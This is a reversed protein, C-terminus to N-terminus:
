GVKVTVVGYAPVDVELLGGAYSATSKELPQELIDTEVAPANEPVVRSLRVAARVARGEMEYLRLILADSDEAKKVSALMVNDTECRIFGQAAPEEGTHADTSAVSFPANYAWGARTADSISCDGLHPQVAWRIIHQGMEPLPDPMYSSRLLTLRLVNGDARHGYKDANLLTIGAQQGGNEGSIDAWKLAPVEQPGVPREISGFPVEYRARPNSVNVPFSVRLQPIGTEHSGMELWNVDLTFEVQRSDEALGIEVAFTSSRHKRRCVVAARHPGRQKVELVWSDALPEIRTLQGIVWAAMPNPAEQVYELLGLREGPPVFEVGTAKDVISVVAAASSEVEVRLYRNELTVVPLQTVPTHMKDSAAIVKAGESKVPAASREVGYIRYGTAPVDKAPFAVSIFDHGWFNGTGVVQGPVTHGESDRVLIRDHAWGTNWIKAVVLESRDWPLPNFVIFPQSGAAGANYGTVGGPLSADGAGAGLGDGFESGEGDPEPPLGVVSATDAKAAVQRLARTIVSETVAAVEQYLASSYEYTAHVGSGPLIDHFQCLMTKRWATNLDDLPYAMGALARAIVAAAEARVLENESVRNGRKVSSQSTYCGEFVFNLEDEIVPLDLGAGEVAAFFDQVRSLKLTPYIPWRSMRVYRHLDRRTPGGGHDGLGFLYLHDKLGGTERELRLMMKTIHPGIFGNYWNENDQYALVRSGDPAQWWFLKPEKGGRCFYYWRVGGRNLIAPLMRSHGFMDPEWDIKVAEYPLGFHEKFYRRTYLMQRCLAEGSALNKEGEVWTSATVEWRGEAVRRRIMEFVEPCYEQMAVYTSAQDQSFKLDPFSQMLRDVTSFTDRTTSVTEQWPWLWNMDIHAHGCLHITFKRLEQGIPELAQEAQAVAEQLSAGATLASEFGTLANEVIGAYQRREESSEVFEQALDFEARIREMLEESGSRLAGVKQWVADMREAFSM